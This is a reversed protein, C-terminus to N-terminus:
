RRTEVTNAVGAVWHPAEVVPGLICAHVAEWPLVTDVGPTFTRRIANSRTDVVVYVTTVEVSSGGGSKCEIM